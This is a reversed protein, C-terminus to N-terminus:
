GRAQVGIGRYGVGAPLALDRLTNRGDLVLVLEPFWAPDLTPWVPDATQTVIAAVGPARDGWTWPTAGLGSSRTPPQAAPRLRSRARRARPPRDILPLARSYALEKVGTAPLDAGPGARGRGRLGGLAEAIADLACTSRATTSRAAGLAVLELEPARDLLFHPYVPICHGGVGLGPQHIHSYPQSNAAAIVELSTSASGTPTARRVRQGPRHQRRSLDHRRAERVRGGRRVVDRRGGRRPRERLVGRRARDVRRRPRRRAEPLDRSQPARRRQLPARALVRRVPGDELTLGTAEALRPAYGSARTASRCRPRSSSWPARTCGPRSRPSRPMWRAIIPSRRRTSCSRSSSCSSTRRARPPRAMSRRACGGTRTPARRRARGGGPEEGIHSRGENIAAVVRRTSTWRSSRGATCAFQAALPLGMKGAGVVAVTGTTGPEGTWPRRPPGARPPVAPPCSSRAVSCARRRPTPTSAVIPVPTM